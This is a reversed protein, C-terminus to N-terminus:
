RIKLVIELYKRYGAAAEPLMAKGEYVEARLLYLLPEYPNLTIAEDFAKMAETFRGSRGLAYGYYYHSPTYSNKQVAKELIEIGEKQKGAKTLFYGFESMVVQNEPWIALAKRFTEEAESRKDETAYLKAMEVYPAIYKPDKEIAKRFLPYAQEFKKRKVFGRALNMNAIADHRPRYGAEVKRRPPEGALVSLYEILDETGILPLGPLEYAIKGESLVVTSPVAIIDYSRFTSLGQDLLIPFTIGLDQVMKTIAVTDTASITQNDVNIGIVEIDRDRYIRYFEEFRKLAKASNGSWTSWFIIVVGKKATLQSLTIERGSLNRLTFDHAQSGIQLLAQATVPLATLLSLLVVSSLVCLRRMSAAPHEKLPLRM